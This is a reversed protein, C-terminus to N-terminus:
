TKGRNRLFSERDGPHEIHTALADWLQQPTQATALARKVLVKAIPGIHRALERQVCEIEAESLSSVERASVVTPLDQDASRSGPNAHLSPM